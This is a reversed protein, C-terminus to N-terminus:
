RMAVLDQLLDAQRRRFLDAGLRVGVVLATLGLVPGVVLAVWAAWDWGFYAMAALALAPLSLAVVAGGCITQVALTVGVSGPRSSFPNEGPSPVSYQRVASTVSAVAFGNLAVGVALGLVAPFLRWPAGAAAGLVAYGPVCVLAILGSPFLRGLRDSVGDVGASVHMWFATSDYGVDNHQGWGIMYASVPAMALLALASGGLGPILLGAPLLITMVAPVNFRPDRVWYTGARAAVAGMPTGPLRAFLGLGHGSGGDTSVSRPNRLVAVLIREWVLFALATFAAALLLRLAAPGWQGLVADGSAAWAWGLPTWALVRALAHLRELTVGGDGVVGVLPGILLLLLIGTIGAVDRGRRTTLIASAVGTVIRSLLVCTLVGLAAGVLAVLVAPLSRSATVVTGLALVVTGAGPLGIVGALVLGVALTREPVAFTAFRTPDLTPDAGFLVIPLVSWGLVVAAGGITVLTRALELDGHTRLAVMGSMAGFVLGGGYLLGVLMGIIAAVSRRLGNQLLDLKLRLLHAVM